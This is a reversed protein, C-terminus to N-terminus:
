RKIDNSPQSKKQALLFQNLESQFDSVLENIRRLSSHGPKKKSSEESKNKAHELLQHVNETLTKEKILHDILTVFNKYQHLTARRKDSSPLTNEEAHQIYYTTKTGLKMETIKEETAIKKKHNELRTIWQQMLDSANNPPLNPNM